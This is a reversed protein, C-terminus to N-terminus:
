RVACPAYVLPPFDDPGFARAGATATFAGWDILRGCRPCTDPMDGCENCLLEAGCKECYTTGYDDMAARASEKTEM